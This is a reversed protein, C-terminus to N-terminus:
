LGYNFKYEVQLFMRQADNDSVNKTVFAGANFYAYIAQFELSKSYKWKFEADYEQGLEDENNTGINSKKYYAWKDESEALSFDHFSLRLHTASTPDLHLEVLNENLNSWKMIDMRGYLSGDTGGFPTRFTKNVNDTTDSDGSAYVQGIVFNPKWPVDKLRYGVKAVYGYADYDQTKITGEAKAYTVDYNFGYLDKDYARFGYTYSEETNEGSGADTYLGNKYIIFPEIAGKKNTKFHSYIGAGEYVHKSFLSLQNKDKDKTQGYFADVFNGDWKYSVKALDWLWGYSNGWSGPGLVRKDGYRNGQRGIKTALGSVGALNKVELNLDVFDFDEQPNLYYIDNGSTKKFDQHDLSWGFVDAYYGVAKWTVDPSQKYVMGLKLRSVLLTDDSKGKPNTINNTDGYEKKNMGDLTEFRERIGGVVFLKGASEHNTSLKLDGATMNDAVVKSDNAYLCSIASVALSAILIKKM